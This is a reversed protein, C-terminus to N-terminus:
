NHMSKNNQSFTSLKKSHKPNNGLKSPIDRIEAEGYDFDDGDEDEEKDM